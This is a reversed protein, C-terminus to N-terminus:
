RGMGALVDIFVFSSINDIVLTFLVFFILTVVVIVSSSLVEQRSPWVVRKLEGKVDKFYQGIRKFVGPKAASKKGQGM